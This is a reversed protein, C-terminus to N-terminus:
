IPRTGRCSPIVPAGGSLSVSCPLRPPPSHTQGNPQPMVPLHSADHRNTPSRNANSPRPHSSHACTTSVDVATHPPEAPAPLPIALYALDAEIQARRTHAPRLHPIPKSSCPEVAKLPRISSDPKRSFDRGFRKVGSSFTPRSRQESRVPRRCQTRTMFSDGRANNSGTWCLSQTLPASAPFM